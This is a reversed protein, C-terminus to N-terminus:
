WFCGTQQEQSSKIEDAVSAMREKRTKMFYEVPSPSELEAIFQGLSMKAMNDFIMDVTEQTHSEIKIDM